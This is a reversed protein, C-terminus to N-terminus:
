LRVQGVRQSADKVHHAHARPLISSCKRVGKSTRVPQACVGKRTHCEARLCTKVHGRM